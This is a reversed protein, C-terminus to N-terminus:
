RLVMRDGKIEVTGVRKLWSQGLLSVNMDSNVIVGEVNAADTTGIIIRDIMIPKLALAGGAGQGSLTFDADSFQLGIRAADAKSLAVSSAGTDVLFRVLTGNVQGETYFHGDAARALTFDGGNMPAPVDPAAKPAVVPAIPASAPPPPSFVAVLLGGGVLLLVLRSVTALM